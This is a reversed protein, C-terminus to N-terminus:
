QFGYKENLVEGEPASYVTVDSKSYKCSSIGVCIILLLLINKEDRIEIILPQQAM